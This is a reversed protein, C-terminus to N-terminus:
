EKKLVSSHTETIIIVTIVIKAIYYFDSHLVKEPDSEISISCTYRSEKM